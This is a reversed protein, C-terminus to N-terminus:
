RVRLEVRGPRYRDIGWGLRDPWPQHLDSTEAGAEVAIVQEVVEGVRACGRDGSRVDSWPLWVWSRVRTTKTQRETVPRSRDVKRPWKRMARGLGVTSCIWCTDSASARSSPTMALARTAASRM